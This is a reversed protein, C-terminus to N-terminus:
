KRGKFAGYVGGYTGMLGFQPITLMTGFYDNKGYILNNNNKPDLYNDHALSWSQVGPIKNFQNMVWTDDDFVWKKWWVRAELEEPTMNATSQGTVSPGQSGDINHNLNLESGYENKFKDYIGKMSEDNISKRGEETFVRLDLDLNANLQRDIITKKETQTNNLDRNVEVNVVEGKNNMLVGSGITAKSDWTTSVKNNSADIKLKPKSGSSESGTSIGGGYNYGSSKVYNNLDIMEYENAKISVGNEKHSAIVAGKNTIKGAIEMDVNNGAVISSQQKVYAGESSNKGINGGISGTKNSVDVSVNIGKSSGSSTYTDQMSELVKNGGIKEVYNNAVNINIGKMTSDKAVNVNMNGGSQISLNNYTTSSFSSNASNYSADLTVAGGTSVGGGASWNKNSQSNQETNSGALLTLNEVDINIDQNIKMAGGKKIYDKAKINVSGGSVINSGVSTTTLSSTKESEYQAHLGFNAYMGGTLSSGLNQSISASLNIYQAAVALGALEYNLYADALAEKSIEGNDRAKIAEALEETANKLNRGAETMATAQTGFNKMTDYYANGVEVTFLLEKKEYYTSKEVSDHQEIDKINGEAILNLDGGTNIDAIMNIDGNAMLDLSGKSTIEDKIIKIEKNKEEYKTDSGMNFGTKAGNFNVGSFGRQKVSRSYDSVHIDEMHLIYLDGKGTKELEGAQNVKYGAYFGGSGDNSDVGNISANVGKLTIDGAVVVMSSGGVKFEGKNTVIDENHWNEKVTKTSLLKKTKTIKEVDVITTDQVGQLDFKGGILMTNEGEINIKGGKSTFDNAIDMKNNGGVSFSSVENTTHYVQTTTNGKHATYKGGIEIAEISINNAKLDLNGGINFDSGRLTINNAKIKADGGSSITARNDFLFGKEKGDIGNILKDLAKQNNNFNDMKNVAVNSANYINRVDLDLKNNSHIKGENFIDGGVIKMNKGSEIKSSQNNINTAILSMDGNSSISGLEGVSLNNLITGSNKDLVYGNFTEAKNNITEAKINLTGGSHIKSGWNNVVKANIDLGLRGEIVGSTVGYKKNDEMKQNYALFTENLQNQQKEQNYQKIIAIIVVNM